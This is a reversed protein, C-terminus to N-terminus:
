RMVMFSEVWRLEDSALGHRDLIKAQARLSHLHDEARYYQKLSESPHLNIAQTLLLTLANNLALYVDSRFLGEHYNAPPKAYLLIPREITRMRWVARTVIESVRTHCPHPDGSPLHTVIVTPSIYNIIRTLKGIETQSLDPGM